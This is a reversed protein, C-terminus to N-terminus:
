GDTEDFSREATLSASYLSTNKGKGGNQVKRGLCVVLGRKMLHALYGGEPDNSKLVRRSARGEWPLGIAAAIECKTKPGESALLNLIQVSRPRLDAPWGSRRAFARFSQVRVEALSAVGARELQRRTAARTREKCTPCSDVSGGTELAPLGLQRRWRRVQQRGMRIARGICCNCNGALAQQRLIEQRAPNMREVARAVGLRKAANWLTRTKRGLRRAIERVPMKHYHARIFAEERPRLNRRTVLGHRQAWTKVSEYSRGLAAAIEALTLDIGFHDCLFDVEATTWSSPM